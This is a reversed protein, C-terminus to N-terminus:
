LQFCARPGTGTKLINLFIALEFRGTAEEDFGFGLLITRRPRFPIENNETSGGHQKLLVEVAELIAILSSKMDDTGRGWINEGDFYAEYPDHDM